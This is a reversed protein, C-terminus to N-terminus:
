KGNVSWGKDPTLWGNVDWSTTDTVILHIDPNQDIVGRRDRIGLHNLELGEDLLKQVIKVDFRVTDVDSHRPEVVVSTNVEVNGTVLAFDINSHILPPCIAGSSSGLTSSSWRKTTARTTLFRTSSGGSGDLPVITSSGIKLPRAGHVYKTGNIGKVIRGISSGRTLDWLHEQSQSITSDVHKSVLITTNSSTDERCTSRIKSSGNGRQSSTM